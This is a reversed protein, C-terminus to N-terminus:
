GRNRDDDTLFTTLKELCNAAMNNKHLMGGVICTLVCEYLVSVATTSEILDSIPAYLKKQLRQEHPLLAAFLKLIKIVMWNNNSSTLLAYLPPAFGLCQTPFSSALETIASVTASLVSVDEDQLRERLRKKFDALDIDNTQKIAILIAAIAKQRISPRTHTSLRSLEGSLDISLEPTAITSFCSLAASPESALDKKLLNPMLMM